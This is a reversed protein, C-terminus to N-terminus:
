DTKALRDPYDTTVGDVGWALLRQCAAADNVTWPLVRIREAHLHLVQSEDLYEFEPCYVQADAARVIQVPDVAATGAVLVGSTLRPELARLLKVCRHDFSRVMTRELVGASRVCDLLREELLGAKGGNFGDGIYEPHFPVRKLELDFRLDRACQCQRATKAAKVGPGSAYAAVFEFLEALTPPTFPDIGRAGAFLKAVPTVDANQEPFREADPNLDARYRRLETLTLTSILPRRPPDIVTESGAVPRCMRETIHPDHSIIPVGDRSLHLDTEISTVGLDIATEFSPLTNEPKLGRAGRHGQLEFPM